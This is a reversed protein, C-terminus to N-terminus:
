DHCSEQLSPLLRPTAIMLASWRVANGHSVTEAVRGSGPKPIEAKLVALHDSERVHDNSDRDSDKDEEGYEVNGAGVATVLDVADAAQGVVTHEVPTQNKLEQSVRENVCADDVQEEVHKGDPRQAGM